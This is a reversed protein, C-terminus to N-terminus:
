SWRKKETNCRWKMEKIEDNKKGEHKKETWQIGGEETYQYVIHKMCMVERVTEWTVKRLIKRKSEERLKNTTVCIIKLIDKIKEKCVRRGCVYLMIKKGNRVHSNSPLLIPSVIGPSVPTWNM